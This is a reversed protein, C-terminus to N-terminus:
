KATQKQDQQLLWLIHSNLSRGQSRAHKSAALKAEATAFIISTRRGERDDTTAKKKM